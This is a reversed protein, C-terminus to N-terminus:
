GHVLTVAIAAHSMQKPDLDARRDPEEGLFALAAGEGLKLEHALQLDAVAGLALAGHLEPIPRQSAAWLTLHGGSSHGMVLVRWFRAIKPCPRFVVANNSISHGHIVTAGEQFPLPRFIRACM